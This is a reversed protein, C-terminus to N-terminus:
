FSIGVFPHTDFGNNRIGGTLGFRKYVRVNARVAFMTDREWPQRPSVEAGLSFRRGWAYTAGFYPRLGVGSGYDEGDYAELKGGGHVYFASEGHVWLRKSAAVYLTGSDHGHGTMGYAGVSIAPRGAAETVFQKQVGVGPFLANGGKGRREAGTVGATVEWGGRIGYTPALLMDFTDARFGSPHMRIYNSLRIKGPAVVYGIGHYDLQLRHTSTPPEAPTSDAHAPVAV